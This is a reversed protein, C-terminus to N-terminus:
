QPTQLDKKSRDRSRGQALRPSLSCFRRASSLILVEGTSTSPAHSAAAHEVPATIPVRGVLIATAGNARCYEIADLSLHSLNDLLLLVKAEPSARSHNVFQKLFILFDSEQMWESGSCSSM